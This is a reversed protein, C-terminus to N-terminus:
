VPQMLVLCFSSSLHHVSSGVQILPLPYLWYTSWYDVRIGRSYSSSSSSSKPLPVCFASLLLVEFQSAFAATEPPHSPASRPIEGDRQLFHPIYGDLLPADEYGLPVVVGGWLPPASKVSKVHPVIPDADYELTQNALGAVSRKDSQRAAVIAAELSQRM